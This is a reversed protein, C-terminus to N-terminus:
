FLVSTLAITSCSHLTCKYKTSFFVFVPLFRFVFFGRHLIILLTPTKKKSTKSTLSEEAIDSAHSILSFCSRSEMNKLFILAIFYLVM